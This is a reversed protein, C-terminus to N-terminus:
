NDQALVVIKGSPLRLVVQLVGGSERAYLRANDTAPTTPETAQSTLQLWGDLTIQGEVHGGKRSLMGKIRAFLDDIKQQLKDTARKTETDM